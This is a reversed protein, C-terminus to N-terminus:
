KIRIQGKNEKTLAISYGPPPKKITAPHIYHNIATWHFILLVCIFTLTLNTLTLYPYSLLYILKPTGSTPTWPAKTFFCLVVGPMDFGSNYFYRQLVRTIQLQYQCCYAFLCVFLCGFVRVLLCVYLCCSGGGVVVIQCRFVCLSSWEREPRREWLVLRRSAAPM